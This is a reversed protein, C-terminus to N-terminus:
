MLAASMVLSNNKVEGVVHYYGLDDTFSSSSVISIGSAATQSYGYRVVV